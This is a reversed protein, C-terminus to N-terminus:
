KKEPALEYNLPSPLEQSKGKSGGTEADANFVTNLNGLLSALAAADLLTSQNSSRARISDLYSLAGLDQPTVGDTAAANPGSVMFGPALRKADQIRSLWPHAPHQVAHEGMGTVYSLSEPNVGMIYSLSKSAAERYRKQGTMRYAAVLLNAREAIRRNSTESFRPLGAGYPDSEVADSIHSALTDVTSKIFAVTAADPKPAYLAYDILGLIAPNELSTAQLPTLQPLQQLFAQHYSAKGTTTYLEALAWFRHLQEQKADTKSPISQPHAQLFAWAKEANLQSKVSYSLDAPRFDRAAQAFVAAADATELTSVGDVIRPQEDEDPTRLAKQLTAPQTGRVGVYMAGDARQMVRLWDMGHRVEHHFDDNVGLGPESFPYDLRLKRLPRNVWPGDGEDVTMLQAVALATVSVSKDYSDGNHWGGIAEIHPLVENNSAQSTTSRILPADELHCAGHFLRISPDDVEQGCREFFFSRMVPKLADWYVFDAIVIPASKVLNGNLGSLRIEMKGSEHFDSFDLLLKRTGPGPMASESGLETVKIKRYVVSGVIASFHPNKREPDFIIFSPHKLSTPVNDVLLTKTGLRHYGIAPAIFTITTLSPKPQPLPNGPLSQQAWSPLSLLSVLLLLLSFRPKMRQPRLPILSFYFFGLM